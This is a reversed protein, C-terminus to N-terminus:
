NFTSTCNILRWCTWSCTSCKINVFLKPNTVDNATFTEPVFVLPSTIGNSNGVSNILLGLSTVCCNTFINCKCYGWCCCSVVNCLVCCHRLYHPPLYHPPPLQQCCQFIYQNAVCVASLWCQCTASNLM